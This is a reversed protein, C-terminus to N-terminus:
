IDIDMDGNIIVIKPKFRIPPTHQSPNPIFQPDLCADKVFLLDESMGQHHLTVTEVVEPNEQAKEQHHIQAREQHHIQIARVAM